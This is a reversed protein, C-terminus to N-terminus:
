YHGTPEDGTMRACVLPYLPLTNLHIRHHIPEIQAHEGWAIFDNPCKRDMKGCGYASVACVVVMDGHIHRLVPPAALKGLIPHDGRPCAQLM